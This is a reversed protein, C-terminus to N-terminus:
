DKTKISYLVHKFLPSISEVKPHNFSKVYSMGLKKMVNESPKNIEATFSYIEKLGLQEFGYKICAKAGETAYGHGWAEKKLRWGIEICPTFDADFTAKHFGIFGIFEGNEKVEVAYLGYNHATLEEQIAELFADAEKDSLTKPFYRMVIEDSNLRRFEKIDEDKWSRMILRPTEIYIM